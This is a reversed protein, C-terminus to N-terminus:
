RLQLQQRQLRGDRRHGPGPQRQRQHAPRHHLDDNGIVITSATTSKTWVTWHLLRRRRLAGTVINDPSAVSGERLRLDGATVKAWPAFTYAYNVGPPASPLCTTRAPATTSSGPRRSPSAHRPRHGPQERRHLRDADSRHGHDRPLRGRETGPQRHPRLGGSLAVNVEVFTGGPVTAAVDYSSRQLRSRLATSRRGHSATTTVTVVICERDASLSRPPSSSTAAHQRLGDSGDLLRRGAHRHHLHADLGQRPLRRGARDVTLDGAEANNEGPFVTPPNPYCYDCRRSSRRRRRRSRSASPACAGVDPHRCRERRPEPGPGSRHGLRGAPRGALAGVTASSIHRPTRM